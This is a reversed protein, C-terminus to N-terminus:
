LCATMETPPPTNPCGDRWHFCSHTSPLVHQQQTRTNVSLFKSSDRLEDRQWEQRQRQQRHRQHAAREGAGRQEQEQRTGGRGRPLGGDAPLDDRRHHHWPVPRLGAGPVLRKAGQDSLFPCTM